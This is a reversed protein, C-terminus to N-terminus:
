EDEWGEMLEILDGICKDLSAMYGDHYSDPKKGYKELRFEYEREWAGILTKVLEEM